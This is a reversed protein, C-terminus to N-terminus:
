FRVQLHRHKNEVSADAKARKKRLNPPTSRQVTRRWGAGYPPKTYLNKVRLIAARTEKNKQKAKLAEKMEKKMKKEVKKEYM